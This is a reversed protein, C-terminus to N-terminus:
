IRSQADTGINLFRTIEILKDGSGAITLLHAKDNNLRTIVIREVPDIEGRHFLSEIKEYAEPYRELYQM